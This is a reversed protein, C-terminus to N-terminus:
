IELESRQQISQTTGPENNLVINKAVSMHILIYVETETDDLTSREFYQVWNEECYILDDGIMDALICNPNIVRDFTLHPM